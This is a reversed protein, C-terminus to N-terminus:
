KKIKKVNDMQEITDTEEDDWEISFKESKEKKGSNITDTMDIDSEEWNIFFERKKEKTENVPITDQSFLGFEDKFLSKLEVKEDALKEKLAGVAGKKDYNIRYDDPNGEITLFIKTRDLGDDKIIHEEFELEKKRSKNLLLDSLEVSVKYDFQNDFGHVGSGSVNLASSFIDMQPILVESSRIFVQNELTSFKIHKLEEVEIFNSLGLMPEFEILEGNTIKIDSEALITEDKVRLYPDFLSFYNVTGSVQGKLHKDQIYSQGFNNFYYFLSRIDIQEMTSNIKVSYNLDKQREIFGDGKVNGGMSSFETNFLLSGPKYNIEGLMNEASFKKYNFNDVWLKSILYFNDPFIFLVSDTNKENQNKSIILSDVNLNPSYINLDMWLRADKMIIYELFNDIRGKINLENGSIVLSLDNLYLYNSLTINGNLDKIMLNNKKLKLLVESLNIMGEYDWNMIDNKSFNLLKEQNGRIKTDILIRGSCYSLKETKIFPMIDEINLEAKLQYNVQPESLNLIDFAGTLMSNGYHVSVGEFKIHASESNQKKGNTFYGKLNINDFKRETLHTSILGNSLSFESEIKPKQNSSLPGSIKAKFTLNGKVKMKTTSIEPYLFTLNEFIKELNLNNGSIALDLVLDKDNTIIGDVDFDLGEIQLNNKIIRFKNHAVDMKSKVSIEKESLYTLDNSSYKTIKGNLTFDMVYKESSLDGQLIMKKLEGIVNAKKVLNINFFHLDSIKVQNLKIHFNSTKGTEAQNWFKYNDNGNLDTFLNLNGSNIQIERIVYQNKLLSIFNFQLFVDKAFLLTDTNIDTFQNEEYDEKVSSVYANRLRITADPFKRLLTFDIKEVHIPTRIQKNLEHIAYDAIRDEFYWSLFLAAFLITILILIFALFIKVIRKL